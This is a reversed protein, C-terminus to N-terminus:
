AAHAVIPSRRLVPQPPPAPEPEVACTPQADFSRVLHSLFVGGLVEPEQVAAAYGATLAGLFADRQTPDFLSLARGARTVGGWNFDAADPLPLRAQLADAEPDPASPAPERTRLVQVADLVAAGRAPEPLLAPLIRGLERGRPDLALLPLVDHLLATTVCLAAPDVCNTYRLSFSPNHLTIAADFHSRWGLSPQALALEHREALEFVQAIEAPTADVDDALLLVRGHGLWTEATAALMAHLAAWRPAGPPADFVRTDDPLPGPDVDAATVIWLAFAREPDALWQLHRSDAGAHVVVLNQSPNM